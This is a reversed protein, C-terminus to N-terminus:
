CALRLLITSAIAVFIIPTSIRIISFIINTIFEM